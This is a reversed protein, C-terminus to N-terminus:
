KKEFEVRKGEDPDDLFYFLVTTSFGRSVDLQMGYPLNAEKWDTISHFDLQVEQNSGEGVLKWLGSGSELKAQRVGPEHFLAPMDSATFSGDANLVLRPSAKQLKAPLIQRSAERM